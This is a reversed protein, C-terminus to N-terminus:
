PRVKGGQGESRGHAGGARWGVRCVGRCASRRLARRLALLPLDAELGAGPEGCLSEGWLPLSGMREVGCVGWTMMMHEELEVQQQFRLDNM